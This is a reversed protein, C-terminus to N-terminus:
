KGEPVNGHDPKGNQTVWYMSDYKTNYRDSISHALDTPLGQWNSITQWEETLDSRFWVTAM